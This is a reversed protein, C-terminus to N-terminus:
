GSTTARDVIVQERVTVAHWVMAPLGAGLRPAAAIAATTFLKAGMVAERLSEGKALGATIAATHTAGSGPIKGEGLTAGNFHRLGDLAVLVDLSGEALGGGTVLVPAGHRHLLERGAAEMDDRGICEEMDALLAAEFRNPVVVTARPLLDERLAKLVEPTLLPVGRGDVACPDIVVKMEPHERLWRSVVRVTGVAPLFGVKVATVPLTGAVAELQARVSHEPMASLDLVRATQAVVATVVAANLCSLATFTKIDVQIGSVGTSVSAGISLCVSPTPQM